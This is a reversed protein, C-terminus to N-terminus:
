VSLQCGGLLYSEVVSHVAGNKNLESRYLNFREVHTQQSLSRAQDSEILYKIRKRSAKKVRGFTIHPKFPRREADFGAKQCSTEVRQQLELLQQSKRVGAWIVRPSREGPFVGVGEIQLSFPARQISQLGAILEPLEKPSTEGLFRLTLHMQCTKQWKIGRIPEQLKILFQLITKPLPIAIFLRM